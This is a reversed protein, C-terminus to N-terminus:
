YKVHIMHFVKGKVEAVISGGVIQIIKDREEPTWWHGRYGTKSIFNGNKFDTKELDPEGVLGSISDYISIGYDKLSEQTFLSIILEGKNDSAVRIMESIIKFPDGYPTGLSNQLCIVVPNKMDFGNLAESLNQADANVISINGYESSVNKLEKLMHEDLEVALVNKGIRSLQPLVRGYGAGVDIFTKNKLDKINTIYDLEINIYERLFPNNTNEVLKIYEDTKWDYEM